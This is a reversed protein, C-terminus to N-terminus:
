VIKVLISDYFITHLYFLQKKVYSVMTRFILFHALPCYLHGFVMIALSHQAKPVMGLIQDMNAHFNAVAAMKLIVPFFYDLVNQHISFILM